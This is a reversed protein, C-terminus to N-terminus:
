WFKTKAGEGLAKNPKPRQAGRAECQMGSAVNHLAEGPRRDRASRGATGHTGGSDLSAIVKIATEIDPTLSARAQPM